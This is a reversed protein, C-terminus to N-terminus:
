DVGQCTIIGREGLKGEVQFVPGLFQEIVWINTLFHSTIEETVMVSAGRVQTLYLVMQDALHRDVAAQSNRFTLYADAVEDAVKEAPKGRVGLANFGVRPGWLFVFSGPDLGSAEMLEVPLDAGLREKLQQAQRRMIHEPLRSVASLGRFAAASPPKRWEVGTLSPAPTIELRIEGGGRPYWGWRALEMTVRGGMQGLAPLFVHMLYHAPPSWPVHTGGRLVLTSPLAAKLLPPLLAQAVLSVSGASGTKEAVDFLYRGPQPPRPRFTLTQSTLEAGHVEAQTVRALAKVATLHQPRLGPKARGARINEISVPTGLLAALSLATRLIQGGGEGYSGDLRLM